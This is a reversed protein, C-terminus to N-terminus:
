AQRGFVMRLSMVSVGTVMVLLVWGMASAYGLDGQEFGASYLYAVFTIGAGAPGIGNFLVYPLEFIQLAGIVGTLVLFKMVRSIGPLTVHWFQSLTGAGDVSAAEYLEKPVGQLAALVYVMAAGAGTWVAALIVMGRAMAPDSLVWRPLMAAFM